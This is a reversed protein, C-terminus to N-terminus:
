RVTTTFDLHLKHLTKKTPIGTKCDWGHLDYYENLMQNFEKPEIKQGKYRGLPMPKFYREPLTDDERRIGERALFMRETTTIREGISLLDDSSIDMNTAHNILNKFENIGLHDPNNFRQAFRCIGLADAIAFERESQWVMLAKGSYSTPDSSVPDGYIERLKEEPLILAEFTPRSRLHDAGRTATAVGLAFGKFARVDVSDSQILKKVWNLSEESGSGFLRTAIQPGNALSAGLGKRFAIQDVLQFVTEKDGWRLHFGMTDKTTLIGEQFLEMTWAIINGTSISDLGYRNVLDNLQLITELDNIGCIPGFAALTGYEPGEAEITKGERDIYQYRHRCAIVCGFCAKHSIYKKKLHSIGLKKGESFQNLRGNYTRLIGMFNHLDFLFPTGYKYLVQSTKSNLLRKNLQKTYNILEKGWVVTSKRDAKVAIAKLNKAGMLCGLGGRGATNKLGHRICAFAVLNEGAQGICLSQCSMGHDKKLIYMTEIADKGWLHEANVIQINAEEILLYIPYPSKGKIVLHDFGTKKLESSFFGGINSDALLDTEPSKATISCRSASPCPLGSLLGAGVILPSEPSMADTKPSSNNYLLYINIGRGGLFLRRIKLPIPEVTIEKTSLNIFAIHQNM